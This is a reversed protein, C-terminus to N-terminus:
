SQSHNRKTTADSSIWSRSLFLSSSLYKAMEEFSSGFWDISVDAFVIPYFSQRDQDTIVITEDKLAELRDAQTFYLLFEKFMLKCEEVNVTTGWIIVREEAMAAAAAGGRTIGDALMNDLAASSSTAVGDHRHNNSSSSLGLGGGLPSSATTTTTRQPPPFDTKICLRFLLYKVTSSIKIKRLSSVDGRIDGRTKRPTSKNSNNLRSVSSLQSTPNLFPTISQGPQQKQPKIPTASDSLPYYLPTSGGDLRQSVIPTNNVKESRPPPPHTLNYERRFLSEKVLIALLQLRCDCMKM